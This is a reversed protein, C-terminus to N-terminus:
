FHFHLFINVNTSPNPQSHTENIITPSIIHKKALNNSPSTVNVLPTSSPKKNLSGGDVTTILKKM